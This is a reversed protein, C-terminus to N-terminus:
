RAADALPLAALFQKVLAIAYTQQEVPFEADIICTSDDDDAHLSIRSPSCGACRSITANAGVGRLPKWGIHMHQEMKIAQETGVACDVEISFAAGGQDILCRAMSDSDSKEQVDRLTHDAFFRRRVSASVIRDCTLKGPKPTTPQASADISAAFTSVDTPAADGAAVVPQSVRDSTSARGDDKGGSCAAVLALALLSRGCMPSYDVHDPDLSFVGASM